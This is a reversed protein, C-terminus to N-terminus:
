RKELPPTGVGAQFLVDVDRTQGQREVRLSGHDGPRKRKVAYTLDLSEKLPDGDLSLLLDGAAIGSREANSGAVVKKVVLGRGSPAAEVMVGLRVGTERMEEYAFFALFDYPVMPFDPLNISMLEQRKSDPVEIEQGGILVSSVPIRRFVRRPIGYGNAIHYGGAIVLLHRGSGAPSQLYRAATDAMTEDRLTQARVFGDLAMDGHTHDGFVTAVMARQYPDTLDMEPLRAREESSLRDLPVARVESVLKKDANLGIVPIKRDRCFVLLDRYYAFDMSWTEFWRSEKLFSKEDLEGAVWRDLVPQQSPTFMEMALAQRGPHLDDLGQLVELELRHSAPNDHTEGIYVVRADGAVALMQEKSVYFGTPLHAIKGVQPPSPLPYPGQPDGMPYHSAPVCATLLLLSFMATMNAPIRLRTM